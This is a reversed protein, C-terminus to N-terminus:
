QLFGHPSTLTESTSLHNFLFVLHHLAAKCQYIYGTYYEKAHRPRRDSFRYESDGPM